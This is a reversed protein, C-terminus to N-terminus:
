FGYGRAGRGGAPGASRPGSIDEITGLTDGDSGRADHGPRSKTDEMTPM